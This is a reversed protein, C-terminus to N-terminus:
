EFIKNWKILNFELLFNNSLEIKINKRNQKIYLIKEVTKQKDDFNVVYNNDIIEKVAGSRYDAVVPTGLYYSEAFVCGFTEKFTTALVCLSEKIIKAYKNKNCPGHIIIKDGYKFKIEDIYNKWNNWDYGPSLLNLKINNDKKIVEDFVKIVHEIGKQWASAYTIYNDNVDIQTNKIEILEEDYLINYIVNLRHNEFNYCYSNMFIIFDNKVTESVFVYSINKNEFYEKLINNKFYNKNKCLNKNNDDHCWIFNGNDVLDHNWIIIKNNKIKRYIEKFIDPLFRQVIVIDSSNIEENIFNIHLSDYTINDLIVKEQIGNYCRINFNYSLKKILSYLQYESAGIACNLIKKHTETSTPDLFILTKKNLKCNEKYNDM